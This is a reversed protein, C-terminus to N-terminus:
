FDAGFQLLRLDQRLFQLLTQVNQLTRNEFKARNELLLHRLIRRNFVYHPLAFLRHRRSKGVLM